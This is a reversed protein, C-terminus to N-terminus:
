ITISVLDQGFHEIQRISKLSLQHDKTNQLLFFSMSNTDFVWDPELYDLIDYHCSVAVFKKDLKRISKAIAMSGVKAINRDVVSTFEDFAIVERQELIARALDVRMKEGNSLVGYPKIWSPPSSFGVANLTKCITQIDSSKPMDELVSKGTYEFNTIFNEGFLEKAITSKGTGSNGVIVGINWNDMTEFPIEGEFVQTYNEPNLDFSSIVTQVAFSDSPKTEKIIKFKTM